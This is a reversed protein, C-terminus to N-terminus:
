RQRVDFSGTCGDTRTTQEYYFDEKETTDKEITLETIKQELDEIKKNMNTLIQLMIDM